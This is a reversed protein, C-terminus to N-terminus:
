VRVRQEGLKGHHLLLPHFNKCEKFLENICHLHHHHRVYCLFEYEKFPSSYVYIYKLIYM